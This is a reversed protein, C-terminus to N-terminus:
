GVRFPLAQGTSAIFGQQLSQWTYVQAAFVAASVNLGKAIGAAASSAFTCGSGHYSHPLREWTWAQPALNPSYLTNVVQETNEHTGTICVHKCGKNLLENAAQELNLEPATLTRAEQSNPTLLFTRPLLLERMAALIEANSLNNGGGAALVPDLIVPIEPYLQLIAAVAEVIEVSGLLGIKCAAIPMDALVTLAQERILTGSLPNKARVNHTNQVTVCTIVPAAHCGQQALTQIDASIGAGGTPDNGAIVLVISPISMTYAKKQFNATYNM